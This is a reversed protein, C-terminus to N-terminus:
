GDSKRHLLFRKGHLIDMLGRVMMSCRQEVVNRQTEITMLGAGQCSFLVAAQMYLPLTVHGVVYRLSFDDSVINYHYNENVNFVAAHNKISRTATKVTVNSNTEVALPVIRESSLIHRRHM